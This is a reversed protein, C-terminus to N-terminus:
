LPKVIEEDPSHGTPELMRRVRTRLHVIELSAMAAEAAPLRSTQYKRFALRTLLRSLVVRESRRPWWDSRVRRRYFPIVEPVWSPVLRL